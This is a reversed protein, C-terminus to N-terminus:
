PKSAELCEIAISLAKHFDETTYNPNPNNCERLFEDFTGNLNKSISLERKLIRIAEQKTM